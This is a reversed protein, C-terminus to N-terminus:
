SKFIRVDMMEHAMAAFDSMVAGSAIQDLPLDALADGLKALLPHLAASVRQGETQGLPLFRVAASILNSAFGQLYLAVIESVPLGLQGARMGFAVPYPMPPSDDNYLANTTAMFAAGQDRAEAWREASAALAEALASLEFPDEGRAAAAVLAGDVRGTGTKLVTELWSQLTPADTVYKESIAWELGHSYAFASIPFAPSLWQQLTLRAKDM